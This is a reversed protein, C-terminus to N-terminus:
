EQTNLPVQPRLPKVPHCDRHRLHSLQWTDLIAVWAAELGDVAGTRLPASEPSSEKSTLVWVAHMMWKKRCCDRGASCARRTPVERTQHQQSQTNSLSEIRSVDIHLGGEGEHSALHPALEDNQQSSEQLRGPV